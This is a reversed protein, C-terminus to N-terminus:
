ELVSAPWCTPCMEANSDIFEQRPGIRDTEFELRSPVSNGCETQQELEGDPYASVLAHCVPSDEGDLVVASHGSLDSDFDPPEITM